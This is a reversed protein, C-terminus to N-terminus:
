LNRHLWRIRFLDRFMKLSDKLIKVRSQSENRWIVSEEKIQFGKKQALYLIEADFAFGPIKQLNFLTHAAKKTFCKFGCQSDQIGKFSLTQAFLNFVRGMFERLPNQRIEVKSRDLARSGIVIDYGEDFSPFFKVAEELPTSLDTDSFLIYKGKAALMGRKVANGKGQNVPNHLLQYSFRQMIEEIVRVSSDSSGDDVLILECSFSQARIFDVILPLSKQLRTEENYFPIVLSLFFEM